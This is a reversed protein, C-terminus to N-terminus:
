FFTRVLDVVLPDAASADDVVPILTWKDFATCPHSLGLRVVDGVELASGPDLRLFTHQDNVATVSAGALIGDPKGRVHQPTPLGEDFPFDRKGGDLLALGPEPRSLVRSWGHMSAGLPTGTGRSFPSITRYFGDDHVLYAGSRLMVRVDPGALPGLVEAVQDFFASGGATVLTTSSQDYLGSATILRHLRALRRLYTDVAAKGEASADHALAGEYGATGVLRLTPVVAVARAIELAEYIYRTGTRGGVGGLEVCVDLPRRAGSARFAGEMLEVGRVSDVWCAFEFGPDRDLESSIWRLGAPDLLANALHLRRVGFARGV